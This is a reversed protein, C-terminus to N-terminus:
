PADEETATLRRAYPITGTPAPQFTIRVRDGIVLAPDAHTMVRVAEDLDILAQGYPAHERWEPSPARDVATIAHVAGLCASPQDAPHPSGCHPCFDRRFYWRRGCEACAQFVVGPRGQTWDAFAETM